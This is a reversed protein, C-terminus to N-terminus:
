CFHLEARSAPLAAAPQSVAPRLLVLRHAVRALAAWLRSARRFDHLDHRVAPLLGCAFAELGVAGRSEEPVSPVPAELFVGRHVLVQVYRPLRQVGRRDQCHVFRLAAGARVAVRLPGQLFAPLRLNPGGRPDHPFDPALEVFDGLVKPVVRFSAVM